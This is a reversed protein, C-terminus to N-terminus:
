VLLFEHTALSQQCQYEYSGALGSGETGTEVALRYIGVVVVAIYLAQM